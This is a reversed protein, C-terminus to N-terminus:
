PPTAPRPWIITVRISPAPKASRRRMGRERRAGRGRFGHWVDAYRIFPWRRASLRTLREGWSREDRSRWLDVCVAAETRALHTMGHVGSVAETVFTWRMFM